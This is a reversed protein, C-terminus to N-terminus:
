AMWYEDRAQLAKGGDGNLETIRTGANARNALDYKRIVELSNNGNVVITKGDIYTLRYQKM